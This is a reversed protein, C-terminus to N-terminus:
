PPYQVLNKKALGALVANTNKTLEICLGRMGSLTLLNMGM